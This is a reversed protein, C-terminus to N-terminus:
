RKMSNGICLGCTSSTQPRPGARWTSRIMWTEKGELYDCELALRIPFGPLAERAETVLEFYHPLDTILMRWDDFFEPMPNHDSFGVEALGISQAHRAYEVPNGEAHLCLPTHTHYDALM